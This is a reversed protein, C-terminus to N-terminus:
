VFGIGILHIIVIFDPSETTESEPSPATSNDASLTSRLRAWQDLENSANPSETYSRRAFIFRQWSHLLSFLINM